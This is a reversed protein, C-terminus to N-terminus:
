IFDADFTRVRAQLAQLHQETIRTLEIVCPIESDPLFEIDLLCNLDILQQQANQLIQL